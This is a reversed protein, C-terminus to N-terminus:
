ITLRCDDDDNAAVVAVVSNGRVCSVRLLFYFFYLVEHEYKMRVESVCESESMTPGVTSFSTIERTGEQKRNDQRTFGLDRSAM